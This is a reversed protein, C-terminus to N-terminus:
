WIGLDVAARVERRTRGDTSVDALYILQQWTGMHSSESVQFEGEGLLQVIARLPHINILFSDQGALAGLQLPHELQLSIQEPDDTVELHCAQRHDTDLPRSDDLTRQQKYIMILAYQLFSKEQLPYDQMWIAPLDTTDAIWGLGGSWGMEPDSFFGDMGLQDPDVQSCLLKAMLTPSLRGTCSRDLAGYLIEDAIQM